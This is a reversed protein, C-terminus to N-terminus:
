LQDLSGQYEVFRGTSSESKKEFKKSSVMEGELYRQWTESRDILIRSADLATGYSFHPTPHSPSWLPTNRNTEVIARASVDKPDTSSLLHRIAPLHTLHPLVHLSGSAITGEKKLSLLYFRERVNNWSPWESTLKQGPWRGSFALAIGLAIWWKKRDETEAMGYWAAIMLAPLIILDYHFQLSRQNMGVAVLNILIGPLAVALWSLSSRGRFFIFYPALLLLLYRPTGSRFLHDRIIVWWHTPSFFLNHIIESPTSGLFPVRTTIVMDQQHQPNVLPLIWKFAAFGYALSALGTTLAMIKRGLPTLPLKPDLLIPIAFFATVVFLNEKCLLTIAFSLFYGLASGRKLSLYMAILSAFAIHDERIDWPVSQRLSRNCLIILTGVFWFEPRHALPGKKLGWWLPLAILLAQLAFVVEDLKFLATIPTLLLLSLSLHQDLYTGTPCLDSHLIKGLFPYFLAHHVIGQDHTHTHFSWHRAVHGLFLVGFCIWLLKRTWRESVRTNQFTRSIFLKLITISFVSGNPRKLRYIWFLGLFALMWPDLESFEIKFGPTTLVFGGTVWMFLILLVLLNLSSKLLTM